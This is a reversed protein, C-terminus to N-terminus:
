LVRSDCLRCTSCLCFTCALHHRSDWAYTIIGDSCLCRRCCCLSCCHSHDSWLEVGVLGLLGMELLLLVLLVLLLKPCRLPKGESIKIAGGKKAAAAHWKRKRVGIRCCCTGQNLSKGKNPYFTDEPARVQFPAYFTTHM